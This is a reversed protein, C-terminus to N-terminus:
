QEWGLVSTNGSRTGVWHIKPDKRPKPVTDKKEEEAIQQQMLPVYSQDVNASRVVTKKKEIIQGSVDRKGKLEESISAIFLTAKGSNLERSTLNLSDKSFGVDTKSYGAELLLSKFRDIGNPTVAWYFRKCTDNEFLVTQHIGSEINHVEREKKYDLIRFPKLLAQVKTRRQGLLEDVIQGNVLVPLSILLTFLVM